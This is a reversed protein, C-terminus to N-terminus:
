RYSQRWCPHNLTPRSGRSDGAGLWRDRPPLRHSPAPLRHGVPPQARAATATASAATLLLIRPRRITASCGSSYHRSGGSHMGELRSRPVTCLGMALPVSGCDNCLGKAWSRCQRLDSDARPAPLARCPAPAAPPRRHPSCGGSRRQPVPGNRQRRRCATTSSTPSRGRASGRFRSKGAPLVCSASPKVRSCGTQSM